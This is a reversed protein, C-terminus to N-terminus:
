AAKRPKARRRLQEGSFLEEVWNNASSRYRVDYTTGLKAHVHRGTVTGKRGTEVIEVLTGIPFKIGAM